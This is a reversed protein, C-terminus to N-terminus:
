VARQYPSQVPIRPSSNQFIGESHFLHPFFPRGVPLSSPPEECPLLEQLLRSSPLLFLISFFSDSYPVSSPLKQRCINAFYRPLLCLSDSHLPVCKLFSHPQVPAKGPFIHKKEPNQIEEEIKQTCLNPVFNTKQQYLKLLKTNTAHTKKANSTQLLRVQIRSSASIKKRKPITLQVASPIRLIRQFCYFFKM